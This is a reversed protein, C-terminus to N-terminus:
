AVDAMGSYRMLKAEKRTKKMRKVRLPSHAHGDNWESKKELFFFSSFNKGVEQRIM